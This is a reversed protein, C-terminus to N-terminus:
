RMLPVSGCPFCVEQEIQAVLRVVTLSIILPQLVYHLRYSFIGKDSDHCGHNVDPTGFLLRRRFRHLHKELRQDFGFRTM